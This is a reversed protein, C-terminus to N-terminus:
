ILIGRLNRYNEREIVDAGRSALLRVVRNLALFVPCEMKKGRNTLTRPTAARACAEQILEIFRQHDDDEHFVDQRANNYRALSM